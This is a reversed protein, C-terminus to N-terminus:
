NNVSEYKAQIEDMKYMAENWRDSGMRSDLMVNSWYRCDPDDKCTYTKETKRIERFM